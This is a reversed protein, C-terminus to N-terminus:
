ASVMRDIRDAAQGLVARLDLAIGFPNDELLPLAPDSALFGRLRGTAKLVAAARAARDAAGAAKFEMLAAMIGVQVNGSFGALGKDAIQQGLPHDVGRFAAQLASIQRDLVEKADRWVELPAAGDVEAAAGLAVGLVGSLWEAQAPAIM